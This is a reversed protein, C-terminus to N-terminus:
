YRIYRTAQEQEAVLGIMEARQATIFAHQQQASLGHWLDFGEQLAAKTDFGPAERQRDIWQAMLAVLAGCANPVNGQLSDSIFEISSITGEVGNMLKTRINEEYADKIMGAAHKIEALHSDSPTAAQEYSLRDMEQEVLKDVSLNSNVVTLKYQSQASAEDKEAVLLL